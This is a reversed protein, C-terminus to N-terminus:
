YSISHRLTKIARYITTRATAISVNMTVAIEEYSRNETFRMTIAEQQHRTLGKVSKALSFSREEDYEGQIIKAEISDEGGKFIPITDGEELTRLVIERKNGKTIKRKLSKLLYFKVNVNKSLNKRYKYLDLFLDHICDKVLGSDKTLKSGFDYLLDVYTSYLENLADLDGRRLAVWLHSEREKDLEM